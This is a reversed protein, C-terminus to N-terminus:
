VASVPPVLISICTTLVALVLSLQTCHLVADLKSFMVIRVFLVCHVVPPVLLHLVSICLVVVAVFPTSHVVADFSSLSVVHV